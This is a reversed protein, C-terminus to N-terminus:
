SLNTKFILSNRVYFLSGLSQNMWYRRKRRRRGKTGFLLFLITKDSLKSMLGPRVRRLRNPHFCKKWRLILWCQAGKKVEFNIFLTCKKWWFNMFMTCWMESNTYKSKLHSSIGGLKQAGRESDSCRAVLYLKLITLLGYLCQAGCQAGSKIYGSIIELQHSNRPLM